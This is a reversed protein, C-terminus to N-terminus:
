TMRLDALLERVLLQHLYSRRSEPQNMQGMEILVPNVGRVHTGMGLSSRARGGWAGGVRVRSEIQERATIQENAREVVRSVTEQAEHSASTTTQGIFAPGANDGRERFFGWSEHMDWFWHPRWYRALETIEHAMVEMPQGDPDGPYARNLDADLTREFAAAARWNLRPLVILVGRDVEWSAIQEAALWGGPENGHVGGLVMVRPGPRGSHFITGSAKWDTGAMLVLDERGRSRMPPEPIPEPTPIPAAVVPESASAPAGEDADPAVEAALGESPGLPAGVPRSGLSVAGIASVGAVGAAMAIFRRRRVRGSQFPTEDAAM